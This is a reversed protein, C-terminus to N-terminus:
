ATELGARTRGVSKQWGGLLRGIETTMGAVHWYQGPQMLKLEHCLRLHFRLRALAIDAQGLLEAQRAGKSLAAELLLEQLDLATDQVRRALVFRQERPFQLTHPILWLLLDHTRAFIPSDKM